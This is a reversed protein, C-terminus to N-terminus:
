LTLTDKKPALSKIKLKKFTTKLPNIKPLFYTSSFYFDDDFTFLYLQYRSFDSQEEFLQTPDQDNFTFWSRLITIMFTVRWDQYFSDLSFLFDQVQDRFTNGPDHFLQTSIWFDVEFIFLSGSRLFGWVKFTGGVDKFARGQDESFGKYWFAGFRVKNCWVRYNLEIDRNLSKQAVECFDGFGGSKVFMGDFYTM